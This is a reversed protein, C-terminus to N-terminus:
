RRTDSKGATQDAVGSQQGASNEFASNRWNERVPGQPDWPPMALLLYDSLATVYPEYMSRFRRLHERAEPSRDCHVNSLQLYEYMVEMDIASLRDPEPAKPPQDLLLGLEVLCHRLMAFTNQAQWTDTGEIGSLVLACTDLVATIAAIWSQNDYHSRYYMLVPYSIHSELTDAGTVEWDALFRELQRLNGARGLRALIEAASPPSGARSDLMSIQLERKSFAAYLV